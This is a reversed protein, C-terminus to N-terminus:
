TPLVERKSDFVLLCLCQNELLIKRIPEQFLESYTEQHIALYLCRDPELRTLIYYYLIYQYIARFCKRCFNHSVM